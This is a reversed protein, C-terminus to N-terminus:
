KLSRMMLNACVFACMAGVCVKHGCPFSALFARMCACRLVFNPPIFIPLFHVFNSFLTRILSSHLKSMVSNGHDDTSIPNKLHVPCCTNWIWWERARGPLYDPLEVFHQLHLDVLCLHPNANLGGHLSPLAPRFLSSFALCIFVLRKVSFKMKSLSCSLNPLLTRHTPTHPWIRLKASRLM